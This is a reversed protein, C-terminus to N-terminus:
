LVVGWFLGPNLAENPKAEFTEKTGHHLAACIGLKRVAWVECMTASVPGM